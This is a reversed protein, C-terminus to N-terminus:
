TTQQVAVWMVTEVVEGLVPM